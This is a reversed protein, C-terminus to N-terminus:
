WTGAPYTRPRPKGHRKATSRRAARAKNCCDCSDVLWGDWQGPPFDAIPPEHDPTTARRVGCWECPTETRALREKMSTYAPDRYEPRAM